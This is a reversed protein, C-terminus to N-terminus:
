PNLQELLWKVAKTKNNVVSGDALKEGADCLGRELKKLGIAQRSNLGQVDIRTSAYGDGCDAVPVKLTLGTKKSASANRSRPKREKKPEAEPKAVPVAVPESNVSPLEM